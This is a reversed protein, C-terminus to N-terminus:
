SETISLKEAIIKIISGTTNTEIEYYNLNINDINGKWKNYCEIVPACERGKSVAKLISEAAVIGFNMNLDAWYVNEFRLKNKTEDTWIINIDVTDIVGPCGRDITIKDIIADHWGLKNFLENTIKEMAM